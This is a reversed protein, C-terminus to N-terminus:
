MIATKAFDPPISEGTQLNVSGVVKEPFMNNTLKMYILDPYLSKIRDTKGIGSPGRLLVSEGEDIWNQIIETDTMKSRDEPKTRDPNLRELRTKRSKIGETEETQEGQEEEQEGLERIQFMEKALYENMFKGVPTKKFAEESIDQGEKAKKPLEWKQPVGSLILDKCIMTNTKEDVLWKVPSVEIWVIDGKKHTEGNSFTINEVDDLFLLGSIEFRVYRRGKYEYEQNKRKGPEGFAATEMTTYSNETKKMLGANYIRELTEQKEKPAVNQPYYGYEVELVDDEKRTKNRTNESIFEPTANKIVPREAIIGYEDNERKGRGGDNCKVVDMGYGSLSAPKSITRTWYERRDNFEWGSLSIALDTANAGAGRKKIVNLRLDGWIEKRTLFTFDSM